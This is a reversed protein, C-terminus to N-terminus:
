CYGASLVCRARVCLSVWGVKSFSAHNEVAHSLGSGRLCPAASQQLERIVTRPSQACAEAPGAIPLPSASVEVSPRWLTKQRGHEKQLRRGPWRHLSLFSVFVEVSPRCVTKQRGGTPWLHGFLDVALAFNSVFLPAATTRGTRPTKSALTGM